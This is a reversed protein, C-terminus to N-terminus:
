YGFILYVWGRSPWFKNEKLYEKPFCAEERSYKYSWKESVAMQLTHPANRLLDRSIENTTIEKFISDDFM